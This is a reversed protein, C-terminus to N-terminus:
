QSKKLLLYILGHDEAFSIISFITTIWYDIRIRFKMLKFLGHKRFFIDSVIVFIMSVIASSWWSSCYCVDYVFLLDHLRQINIKLIGNGLINLWNVEEQIEVRDAPLHLDSIMDIKDICEEANTTRCTSRKRLCIATFSINVVQFIYSSRCVSRRRLRKM